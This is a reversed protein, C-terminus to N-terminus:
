RPDKMSRRYYLYKLIEDEAEAGRVGATATINDVEFVLTEPAEEIEVWEVDWMDDLDLNLSDIESGQGFSV